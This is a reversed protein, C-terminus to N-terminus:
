SNLVPRWEGDFGTDVSSENRRQSGQAVHSATRPLGRESCPRPFLGSNCLVSVDHPCGSLQLLSTRWGLLRFPGGSVGM